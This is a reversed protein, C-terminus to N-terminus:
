HVSSASVMDGFIMEKWEELKLCFVGLEKPDGGGGEQQRSLEWSPATPNLSWEGARSASSCARVPVDARHEPM